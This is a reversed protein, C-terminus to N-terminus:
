FRRIEKFYRYRRVVDNLKIRTLNELGFGEANISAIASGYIMAKRVNSESVDNTKSLYGIITGAFSDGAGTPDVIKELPYAPASFHRDKTFMLAGHEGKKIIAFKPGLSLISNASKVLNPTDFLMRAEGDNIIVADAKAMTNLLEKRKSGIWFNMTDLMVFEPNSFQKLAKAQLEPDINALFVFKADRFKEPIDANFFLLSNLETKLTKAENMDYEYLGDWRFTKGRVEVGAIDVGRNKLFLISEEPFDEGIISVIGTKTFFSSAVSAYTASGGLANKVEGFPTKINDLGITGLIVTNAM